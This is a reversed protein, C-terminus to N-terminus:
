DVIKARYNANKKQFILNINGVKRLCNKIDTPDSMYKTPRNHITTLADKLHNEADARESIKYKSEIYFALPSFQGKSFLQDIRTCRHDEEM